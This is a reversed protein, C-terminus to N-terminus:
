SKNILLHKEPALGEEQQQAMGEARRRRVLFAGVAILLAAGVAVGIIVAKDNDKSASSEPAFVVTVLSIPPLTVTTTFADFAVVVDTSTNRNNAFELVFTSDNSAFAVFYVNSPLGDSRQHGVRRMGPEVFRGFHAFTYYAGTLTFEDAATDVVVLPQQFDVPPDNFSANVFMPGGTNNLICHWYIEASSGALFDGFLMYAWQMSDEFDTRPLNPCSPVEYDGYEVAYCVETMWLKKQPFQEKILAMEKLAEPLCLMTTNYIVRGDPGAARECSWSTQNGVVCDSDYGHTFIIDTFAAVDPRDALWPEIYDLWTLNRSYQEGYTVKPAGPTSHFLPGVHNALLEALTERDAMQYGGIPGPENFMSLYTLPAGHAAMAQAYSLYYQALSEYLSSNIPRHGIPETDNRALMWLPVFDMTAQISITRGAVANARNIYPVVGGAADLDPQLTFNGPTEEYSYWCCSGGDIYRPMGDSSAIAVKGVRFGAGQTPHWLADLLSEQKPQSLSNLLLAGARLFSCGVGDFEQFRAAGSALCVTPSATHSCLNPASTNSSWMLDKPSRALRRGSIDSIWVQASGPMGYVLAWLLVLLVLTAIQRM